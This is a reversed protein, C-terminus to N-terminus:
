VTSCMKLKDRLFLYSVYLLNGIPFLSELERRNSELIHQSAETM